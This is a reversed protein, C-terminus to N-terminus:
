MSDRIVKRTGQWYDFASYATFLAPFLMIYFAIDQGWVTRPIMTLGYAHLLSVLVVLGSGMAQFVAKYKGSARAPVVVGKKICLYRLGSVFTDRYLFILFMWLPLIRVALFAAFVTLRSISDAVPDFFKGFDSVKKQARAVKGDIADSFEIVALCVVAAWLWLPSGAPMRGAIFAYAFLPAVIIRVSTIQNPGV